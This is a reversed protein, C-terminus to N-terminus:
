YGKKRLYEYQTDFEADLQELDKLDQLSQSDNVITDIRQLTPYVSSFVQDYLAIATRVTDLAYETEGNEIANRLMDIFKDLDGQISIRIQLTQHLSKKLVISNEGVMNYDQFVEKTKEAM